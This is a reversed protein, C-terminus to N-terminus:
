RNKVGRYEKEFYDLLEEVKDDHTDFLKVCILNFTKTVDKDKSPVYRLATLTRVKHAFKSDMDYWKKLEIIALIRHCCLLLILYFVIFIYIFLIESTFLKALM